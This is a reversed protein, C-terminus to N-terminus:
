GQVRPTPRPETTGILGAWSNTSQRRQRQAGGAAPDYGAAVDGRPLQSPRARFTRPRARSAVKTNSALQLPPSAPRPQPAASCAIYATLAQCTSRAQVLERETQGLRHSWRIKEHVHRTHQLGFGCATLTLMAVFSTAWCWWRLGRPPKGGPGHGHPDKDSATLRPCVPGIPPPAVEHIPPWRVARAQPVMRLPPSLPRLAGNMKLLLALKM